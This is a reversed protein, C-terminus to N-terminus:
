YMFCGTQCYAPSFGLFVGGEGPSAWLISEGFWRLQYTLSNVRFDLTMGLTYGRLDAPVVYEACGTAALRVTDVHYAQNNWYAYIKVPMNTLSHPPTTNRAPYFCGFIYDAAQAPTATAAVMVAALGLTVLGGTIHRGFRSTISTTSQNKM